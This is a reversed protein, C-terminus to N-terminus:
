LYLMQFIAEGMNHVMTVVCRKLQIPIKCWFVFVYELKPFFGLGVIFDAALVFHFSISIFSLRSDHLIKQGLVCDWRPTSFSNDKLWWSAHAHVSMCGCSFLILGHSINEVDRQLDQYLLFIKQSDRLLLWQSNNHFGHILASVPHWLLLM